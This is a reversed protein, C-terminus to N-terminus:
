LDEKGIGVLIVDDQNPLFHYPPVELNLPAPGERIRASTDYHSGHCPCFFGRYHGAGAIPVCGLHTCIGLVVLYEPKQVREEDTQPHKLASMPTNRAEEVEWDERHRVLLPKGRWEFAITQGPPVKKLDVEVNAIAMMHRGPSLSGILNGVFNKVIITGVAGTAAVMAYAFNRHTYDEVGLQTNKYDQLPFKGLGHVKRRAGTRENETNTNNKNVTVVTRKTCRKAQITRLRPTKLM